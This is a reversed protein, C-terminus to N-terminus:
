LGRSAGMREVLSQIRTKGDEGAAMVQWELISARYLVCDRLSPSLVENVYQSAVRQVIQWM